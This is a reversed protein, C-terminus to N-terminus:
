KEIRIRADVAIVQKDNALLPNIDIEKIETAFRLLISLRVIIEAYLNENLGKQGRTGQIIKYAKLSQIMSHAEHFSLPALGSAVDKLIEVFIGGLGCLIIHGFRAEYKAGIFLETGKLMPQIMVANADKLAMLRDYEWALHEKSKINLVVGGIDSKHVPGVVKAAIPFGIREAFAIIDKKDSSVFEEVYPIGTAKFLQRVKEPSIYGNIDISDIIRRVEPIDVDLDEIKGAFPPTNTVVKSLATALAVEDIFNVHGKAVFESMEQAAMKVSPLIPYIPITTSNMKQDLVDYAERVKTVGPDGYIVAIGDIEKFNEVCFDIALGLHEGTGTGLIDIPNAVSTGPLLKTKLKEGLEKPMEPVNIKGKSLADTLIVAPGGAQTIVALNRGKIEPLLLVAGINALEDRSYCRMIGAKRFLAEVALDSSAIAGTHSSAARSGSETTGSKLAAIKCGKNILSSAHELLRDPEKISEMYVLKVRSSTKPDFSENWYQIVDEVGIQASNGVSWVSNFRLGVRIASEIMFTATGGSSSVMDVGFPDLPPVPKTFIAQYKTNFVGSCNPGVMAVDNDNVLKTIQRELEAGEPTEESFGASYIIFAKVGKKHILTEMVQFCSRAPISIIALEANPVDEVDRYSIVGQTEDQKANVVYLSGRFTGQIINYLASGGPKLIDNSGGVVIISKPNILQRNIMFKANKVFIIIRKIAFHYKM